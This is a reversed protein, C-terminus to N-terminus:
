LLGYSSKCWVFKDNNVPKLIIDALNARTHIKQMDVSLAEVVERIFHYQVDVHKTM